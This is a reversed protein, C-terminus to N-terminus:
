RKDGARALSEATELTKLRKEADSIAKEILDLARKKDDLPEFDALREEVWKVRGVGAWAEEYPRLERQLQEIRRDIRELDVVKIEALGNVIKVTGLEKRENGYPLGESVALFIDPGFTYAQVRLCMSKRNEPPGIDGVIDSAIGFYNM